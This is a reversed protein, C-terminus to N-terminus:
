EKDVAISVASTPLALDARTTGVLADVDLVEVRHFHETVLPEHPAKIDATQHALTVPTEGSSIYYSSTCENDRNQPRERTSRVVTEHGWQQVV